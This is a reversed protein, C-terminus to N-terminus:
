LLNPPRTPLYRDLGPLPVSSLVWSPWWVRFGLTRLRRLLWWSISTAYVGLHEPEHSKAVRDLAALVVPLLDEPTAAVAPGIEGGQSVWCLASAAGTDPELHALCTRDRGFFEHLEPRDHGIAPPELRKWESVARAVTLVHVAPETADVELARREVYEEARQRVHWHGAAPMVGFGTYLSLDAPSGNAVVVRGLEPSPAEPWCRELLARGLGRGQHRPSVALETLEEMERFRVVRAYGLLEGDSSECVWYRGAPHAAIFRVFSRQRRWSAGIDEESPEGDPPIVGQRTATDHLARATLAFTAELDASSGERFVIEERPV